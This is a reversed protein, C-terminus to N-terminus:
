AKVKKIEPILVEIVLLLLMGAAFWMFWTRYNILSRDTFAKAQIQSLQKKVIAVAEDSGQLRTYVGHTAQALHELEPENLRSIVPNGTIDKKPQGTVPDTLLIGEPSGVGIANIMIGQKSLDKATSLAQDDHDEGDSILVVAKYSTGGAAFASAGMKLADSIVTGQQPISEPTATSVFMGAAGHDDTLPMQLYAKGAFLVLGIRDDPMESMLKRIFQRARELRNPALDTAMMSKSVDLVVVIDIGKRNVPDATGPQRPNMAAVSGLAFAVSLLIFKSHVRASSFGATLLGILRSDGMRRRVKKKWALHLFYIAALLPLAALLYILWTNQFEFPM